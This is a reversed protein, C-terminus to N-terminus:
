LTGPLTRQVAAVESTVSAATLPPPTHRPPATQSFTTLKVSLKFFNDNGGDDGVGDDGNDDDGGDDSGHRPPATKSFTALKVSLKLFNMKIMFYQYENKSTSICYINSIYPGNNM